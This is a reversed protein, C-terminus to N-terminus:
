REVSNMRVAAPKSTKNKHETEEVLFLICIASFIHSPSSVPENKHQEGRKEHINKFLILIFCRNLPFLESIHQM